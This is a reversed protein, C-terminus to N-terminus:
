INDQRTETVIQILLRGTPGQCPLALHELRPHAAQGGDVGPTLKAPQQM